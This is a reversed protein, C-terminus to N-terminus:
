NEGDHELNEQEGPHEQSDGRADANRKAAHAHNDLSQERAFDEVPRFIDLNQLEAKGALFDIGRVHVSRKSEGYGDATTRDCSRPEKRSVENSRVNRIASHRAGCYPRQAAGEILM